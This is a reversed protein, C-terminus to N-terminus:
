RGRTEMEIPDEGEGDGEAPGRWRRRKGRGRVGKVWRWFLCWGAAVLGLPPVFWEAKHWPSALDDLQRVLHTVQRSLEGIDGSNDIVFDAYQLKESMPKQASVRQRAEASTLGDRAMLRRIQLSNSTYVVVVRGVWGHLGAEVLLPVDLV